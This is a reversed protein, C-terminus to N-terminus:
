TGVETVLLKDIVRWDHPNGAPLAEVEIFRQDKIPEGGQEWGIVKGDADHYVITKM